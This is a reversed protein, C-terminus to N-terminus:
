VVVKHKNNITDSSLLVELSAIFATSAFVIVKLPARSRWIGKEKHNISEQANNDHCLRKMVEQILNTVVWCKNGAM